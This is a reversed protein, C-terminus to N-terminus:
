VAIERPIVTVAVEAGGVHMGAVGGFIRELSCYNITSQSQGLKEAEMQTKMFLNPQQLEFHSMDLLLSAAHIQFRSLQQAKLGIPFALATSVVALSIIGLSIAIEFLTFASQFKKKEHM